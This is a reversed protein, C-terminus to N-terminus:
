STQSRLPVKLTINFMPATVAGVTVTRSNFSFKIDNYNTCNSNIIIIPSLTTWNPRYDYSHNVFDSTRSDSKNIM